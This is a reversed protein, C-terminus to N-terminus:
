RGRCCCVQNAPRGVRLRLLCLLGLGRWCLGWMSQARLCQLGCGVDWAGLHNCGRGCICFHGLRVGWSFGQGGLGRLPPPDRRCGGGRSSGVHCPEDVGLASVAGHSISPGHLQHTPRGHMCARMCCCHRSWGEQGQVLPTCCQQRHKSLISLTHPCRGGPTNVTWCHHRPFRQAPAELGPRQCTGLTDANTPM